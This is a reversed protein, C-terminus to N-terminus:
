VSLAADYAEHIAALANGPRSCDGIRVVQIGRAELEDALSAVPRQGMAVVVTDARVLEVSGGGFLPRDDVEVGESTIEKVRRDPMFTVGAEELLHLLKERVGM